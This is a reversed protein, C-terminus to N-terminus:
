LLPQRALGVNRVIRASPRECVTELGLEGVLAQTFGMGGSAPLPRKLWAPLRRAREVSATPLVPDELEVVTLGFTNELTDPGPRPSSQM